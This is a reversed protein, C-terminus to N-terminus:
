SITNNTNYYPNNVCFDDENGSMTVCSCSVLDKIALNKYSDADIIKTPVVFAVETQDGSEVTIVFDFYLYEGAEVQSLLHSPVETVQVSIVEEMAAATDLIKQIDETIEISM